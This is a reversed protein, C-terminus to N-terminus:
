DVRRATIGIVRAAGVGATLRLTTVTRAALAKTTDVVNRVPASTGNTSFASGLNTLGSGTDLALQLVSGSTATSFQQAAVFEWTGATLDMIWEIYGSVALAAYFTNGTPLTLGSSGTYSWWSLERAIRVAADSITSQLQTGTHNARALLTADPSNATAGSAIGALKTRETGTLIKTSTGETMTDMSKSAAAAATAATSLVTVDAATAFARDGHPDSAGVHATVKASADTAAAAIAASQATAAAGAGDAGVDTFTTGHPNGTVQQSHDFATKGRDGRYATASTEGLALSASIEVYASGSWRYTLNTDVTVYIKGAEGTGPLAALNAATVVDDVYSPLQGAPVLGDVLDAKLNDADIRAQRETALDDEIGGEVAEARGQEVAVVTDAHARDGHPDDAASHAAIAADVEEITVADDPTGGDIRWVGDAADFRWVHGEGTVTDGDAPTDPFTPLSM